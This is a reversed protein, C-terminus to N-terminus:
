NAALALTAVGIRVNKVTKFVECCAEITAGTTFVDDIILIRKGELLQPNSLAFKESVNLWREFRKKRTQSETHIVRILNNNLVPVGLALSVGEAIKECQNFGRAKLKKPHLPVPIIFDLSSIFDNEKIMRGFRNGFIIGVEKGGKYKLKHLLNQTIGGKKFFLYATCFELQVRGWLSKAMENEPDTHYNTLPLKLMCFTCLIRESGIMSKGCNICVVPFVLDLLGVFWKSVVM